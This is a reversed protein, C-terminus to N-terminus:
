GRVEGEDRRRQQDDVILFVIAAVAAVGRVYGDVGNSLVAMVVAWGQLSSM